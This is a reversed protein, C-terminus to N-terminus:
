WCNREIVHQTMAMSQDDINTITLRYAISKSNIYNTAIGHFCEGVTYIPNVTTVVCGAEIAGFVAIPYEPINPM